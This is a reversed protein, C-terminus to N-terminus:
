KSRIGAAVLLGHLNRLAIESEQLSGIGEIFHMEFDPQKLLGVVKDRALNLAKGEPLIHTGCFQILRTARDRLHMDNPAMLEIIQARVIFKVLLDDIENTLSRKNSDQLGQCASIKEFYETLRLMKEKATLPGPALHEISDVCIIKNLASTISTMLDQGLDSESLSLLYTLRHPIDPLAKLMDLMGQRLGTLGGAEQQLAKRRTLAASTPVGGLIVGARFLRNLVEAFVDAELSPDNKSLAQPSALQRNLRDLIVSQTEPLKGEALLPNLIDIQERADSQTPAFRGEYLDALACLAKGLNSQFGLIDQIAAPVGLLDAFVGDLLHMADPSLTPRALTTLRELKGLWSHQEVLDRSLVVMAFYNAEKPSTIKVIKDLIAQFDSDKKLKPLEPKEEAKRARQTMLAVAKYIEDKRAKSDDGSARAQLTAVMDVASPFLSDVEQVKKLARYNHILETPTVFIKEIYKRFLRNITARSDPQYYQSTQRCVPAEEIRVPSVITPAEVNRTETHIVTETVQGDARQWNRVVKVGGCQSKGFLAKATALAVTESDKLEETIWRGDRLTQIEFSARGSNM